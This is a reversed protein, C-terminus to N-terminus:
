SKSNLSVEAYVDYVEDSSLIRDRYKNNPNETDINDGFKVEHVDLKVRGQEDKKNYNTELYYLNNNYIAIKDQFVNGRTRTDGVSITGGNLKQYFIKIEGLTQSIKYNAKNFTELNNTPVEFVMEGTELDFVKYYTFDYKNVKYIKYTEDYEINDYLTFLYYQDTIQEVNYRYGSNKRTTLFDAMIRKSSDSDIGDCNAYDKIIWSSLLKTTKDNNKSTVSTVYIYYILDYTDLTTVINKGNADSCTLDVTKNNKKPYVKYIIRYNGKSVYDLTILSDVAKLNNNNEIVKSDNNRNKIKNYGFIGLGFGILLVIILISVIIKIYKKNM